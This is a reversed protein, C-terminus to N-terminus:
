AGRRGAADRHDELDFPVEFQVLTLAPVDEGAELVPHDFDGLDAFSM